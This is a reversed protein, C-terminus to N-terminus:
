RVGVVSSSGGELLELTAADTEFPHRADLRAFVLGLTQGDVFARPGPQFRALDTAIMSVQLGHSPENLVAPRECTNQLVVEAELGVRIEPKAFDFVKQWVFEMEDMKLSIKAHIGPEAIAAFLTEQCVILSCPSAKVSNAFCGKAGAAVDHMTGQGLVNEIVLELASHGDIMKECLQGISSEEEHGYSGQDTNASTESAINL